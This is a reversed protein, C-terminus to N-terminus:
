ERECEKTMEHILSIDDDSMSSMRNVIMIPGYYVRGNFLVNADQPYEHLFYGANKVLYYVRFKGENRSDYEDYAEYEGARHAMRQFSKAREHLSTYAVGEAREGPWKFVGLRM